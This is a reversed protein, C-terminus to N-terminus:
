HPPELRQGPRILDPDAGISERNADYWRPWEAAIQADTADDGVHRAAILWLSDGPHVTVPRVTSEGAPPDLSPRDLSPRDLSPRDLSPGNLSPRDLSPITRLPRDLHPISLVARHAAAPPVAMASGTFAPGAVLSVGLAVELARRVARPALLRLVWRACAGSMGPAAAAAALLTIVTLWAVAVWGVLWAVTVLAEDVPTTTLWEPLASVSPLRGAPGAVVLLAAGAASLALARPARNGPTVPM